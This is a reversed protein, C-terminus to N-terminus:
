STRSEELLETIQDALEVLDFRDVFLVVSPGNARATAQVTYPRDGTEASLRARDYEITVTADDSDDVLTITRRVAM